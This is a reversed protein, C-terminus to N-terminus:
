VKFAELESLVTAELMPDVEPVERVGGERTPRVTEFAGRWYYGPPFCRSVWVPSEGRWVGFQGRALLDRDNCPAFRDDQMGRLVAFDEASMTIPGPVVLAALMEEACVPLPRVSEGKHREQPAWEPPVLRTWMAKEPDTAERPEDRYGFFYLHGWLTIYFHFGFRRGLRACQRDNHNTPVFTDTVKM